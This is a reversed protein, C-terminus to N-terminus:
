VELTAADKVEQIMNLVQLANPRSELPSCICASAIDVIMKLQEEITGEERASQVWVSLDSAMLDPHESAPRGTLLELLLVGFAYIDSSPVPRQNSKIEPSQYGPNVSLKDSPRLFFSLCNDTLRAEFDSGLLVNSSKINGHVLGCTEHLYALGQMVDDAIKLCSTWHLSKSHTSKSGIIALVLMIKLLVDSFYTM